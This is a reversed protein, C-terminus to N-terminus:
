PFVEPLVVDAAHQLDQLAYDIMGNFVDLPKEITEDDSEAVHGTTYNFGIWWTTDREAWPWQFFTGAHLPGVAGVILSTRNRSDEALWDIAAHYSDPHAQRLREPLVFELNDNQYYRRRIRRSAQIAAQREGAPYLGFLNVSVRVTRVPALVEYVDPLWQRALDPAEQTWREGEALVGSAKIGYAAYIRTDDGDAKPILNTQEQATAWGAFVPGHAWREALLGRLNWYLFAADYGAEAHFRELQFLERRYAM